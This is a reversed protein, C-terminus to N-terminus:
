APAALVLVPAVVSVAFGQYSTEPRYSRVDDGRAVLQRDVSGGLFGGGGTVLVKM